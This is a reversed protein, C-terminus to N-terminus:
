TSVERLTKGFNEATERTITWDKSECISLWYLYDGNDLQMAYGVFSDSKQDLITYQVYGWTKCLSTANYDVIEPVMFRMAPELRYPYCVSYDETIKLIAEKFFNALGGNNLADGDIYAVMVTVGIDKMEGYWTTTRSYEQRILEPLNATVTCVAKGAPHFSLTKPNGWPAYPDGNEYTDEADSVPPIVPKPTQTGEPDITDTGDTGITGDTPGDTPTASSSSGSGEPDTQAPEEKRCGSCSLMLLLALFGCILRKM